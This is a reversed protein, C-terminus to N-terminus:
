AKIIFWVQTLNTQAVLGKTCFTEKKILLYIFM